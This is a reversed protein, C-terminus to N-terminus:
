IKVLSLASDKIGLNRIIDSYIESDTKNVWKRAIALEIAEKKQKNRVLPELNIPDGFLRHTYTNFPIKVIDPDILKSGFDKYMKIAGTYSEMLTMSRIKRYLHLDILCHTLILVEPSYGINGFAKSEVYSWLERHPLTHYGVPALYRISDETISIDKILDGYKILMAKYLIELKLTNGTHTRRAEIPINDYRPVYFIIVPKSDSLAHAHYAEIYTCLFEVDVDILQMMEDIKMDLTNSSGWVNRAITFVNIFYVNFLPRNPKRAQERFFLLIRNAGISAGVIIDGNKGRPNNDINPFDIM